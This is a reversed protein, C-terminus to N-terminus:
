KANKKLRTVFWGKQRNLAAVYGYDAYGHDFVVVDNAIFRVEQVKRSDHERAHSARMFCPIKGQHELKVTLKIGGKNRGLSIIAPL